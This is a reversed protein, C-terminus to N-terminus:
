SLFHAVVDRGVMTRGSRRHIAETVRIVSFLREVAVDLVAQKTNAEDFEVVLLYQRINIKMTVGEDVRPEMYHIYNNISTPSHIPPRTTVDVQGETILRIATELFERSPSAPSLQSRPFFLTSVQWTWCSNTLGFISRRFNADAFEAAREVLIDSDESDESDESDYDDDDDDDGDDEDNEDEDTLELADQISSEPATEFSGSSGSSISYRDDKDDDDDNDGDGNGSPAGSVASPNHGYSHQNERVVGLLGRERYTRLHVREYWTIDPDFIDAFDPGFEEEDLETEVRIDLHAGLHGLATPDTSELDAERDWLCDPYTPIRYDYTSIPLSTLIAM